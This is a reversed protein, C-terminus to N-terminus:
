WEMKILFILRRLYTFYFWRYYSSQTLIYIIKSGLNVHKNTINKFLWGSQILFFIYRPDLPTGIRGWRRMINIQQIKIRFVRLYLIYYIYLKPCFLYRPLSYIKAIFCGGEGWGQIVDNNPHLYTFVTGVGLRWTSGNNGCIMM